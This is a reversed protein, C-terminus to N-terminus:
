VASAIGAGVRAGPSDSRKEQVFHYGGFGSNFRAPRDGSGRITNSRAGASFGGGGPPLPVGRRERCDYIRVQGVIGRPSFGEGLIPLPSLITKVNHLSLLKKFPPIVHFYGGAPRSLPTFLGPSNQDGWMEVDPAPTLQAYGNPTSYGYLVNLNPQLYERQDIFPTLSGEWGGARQYADM